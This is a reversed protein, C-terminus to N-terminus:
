NTFTRSSPIIHTMHIGVKIIHKHPVFRMKASMEVIKKTAM